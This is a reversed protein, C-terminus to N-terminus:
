WLGLLLLGLWDHVPADLVMFWFLGKEKYTIKCLSPLSVSMGPLGIIQTPSISATPPGPLSLTCILFIHPFFSLFSSCMTACVKLGLV